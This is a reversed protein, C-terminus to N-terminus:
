GSELFVITSPFIFYFDSFDGLHVEKNIFKLNSSAVKYPESNFWVAPPTAELDCCPKKM